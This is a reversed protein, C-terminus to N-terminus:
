VARSTPCFVSATWSAFRLLTGAFSVLAGPRVEVEETTVKEGNVETGNTSGLDSVFLRDGDVRLVAHSKSVRAVPIKVANDGSRGVTHEGDELKLPNSKGGYAIELELM